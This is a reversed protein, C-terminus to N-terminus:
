TPLVEGLETLYLRFKHIKGDTASSYFRMDDPPVDSIVDPAYLEMM